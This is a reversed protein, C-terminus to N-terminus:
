DNEKSEKAAARAAAKAKRIENENPANANAEKQKRENSARRTAKNPSKPHLHEARIPKYSMYTPGPPRYNRRRTRGVPYPGQWFEFPTNNWWNKAIQKKLRGKFNPKNGPPM